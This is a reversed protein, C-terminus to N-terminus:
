KRMAPTKPPGSTSCLIMFNLGAVSKLKMADRALWVIMVFKSVGSIIWFPSTKNGQCLFYSVWQCHRSSLSYSIRPIM